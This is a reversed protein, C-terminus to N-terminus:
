PKLQPVIFWALSIYDLTLLALYLLVFVVRRYREVVLEQLGMALFAAIPILAPFLYRGQPQVFKLNYWVHEALIVGLLLALLVIGRGPESALTKRERVVRWSSLVLGLLAVSVPVFLGVYIRDNVLVGMWGFLAWFSKFTIIFFDAVIHSLGYRAVWEATTPQGVVVADHRAWGLLDTPGYTVANRIFWPASLVLAVAFLPVLLRLSLALLSRTDHTRSRRYLMEAGVLLVASMYITEKTLLALGYSIGGALIFRRDDIKGKARWISILLVLAVVVEALTDNNVAANMALHMPVTAMLGVSALVTLSDNGFIESLVRFAIVLVILGLALSFFRLAYLASYLGAPRAILYLPAALLYYLPPHHSAYRISDIPMSAPFKAAKIAELYAQDYDGAKLEPLAGHEAIYRVYNFHAPEDPTEWPPTRLAYLAGLVLYLALIIFFPLYTSLRPTSKARNM